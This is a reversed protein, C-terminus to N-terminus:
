KCERYFKEMMRHFNVLTDESLYASNSINRNLNLIKNIHEEQVNSRIALGKAFQENLDKTPLHYREHVFILFLRMKQAALQRHNNQLFFLRGITGIFELSTNTNKELVPIVRQRRKARFILYTVAMGLLIYWAWALAPQSLIYKLPSENQAHNGGGGDAYNAFPNYPREDWYIKGKKLHSFTKSAYDLGRKDLLHLNTFAIPTTHLLLQGKGFAVSMFNTQNGNIQGLSTLSTQGLCFIEEPVFAWNYYQAQNLFLKRFQYGKEDALSPHQFNATVVSDTVHYLDGDISPRSYDDEELSDYEMRGCALNSITDMLIQPMYPCAIFVQNGKDVFNLLQSLAASDLWFRDGIYVYSGSDLREALSDKVIEFGEGPYYSELLNRVLYTGYPDKSEPKYHEKWSYSAGERGRALFFLLALVLLVAGVIYPTLNKSV